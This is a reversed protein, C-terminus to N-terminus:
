SCSMGRFQQEAHSHSDVGLSVPCLDQVDVPELAHNCGCTGLRWNQCGHEAAIQRQQLLTPDPEGHFRREAGSFAHDARVGFPHYGHELMMQPVLLAVYPIHWEAEVREPVLNLSRWHRVPVDPEGYQADRGPFDACKELPGPINVVLSIFEMEEPRHLLVDLNGWPNVVVPGNRRGVQSVGPVGFGGPHDGQAQMVLPTRLHKELRHGGPKGHQARSCGGVSVQALRVPQPGKDRVPLLEERSQLQKGITLCRLTLASVGSVVDAAGEPGPLVARSSVCCDM